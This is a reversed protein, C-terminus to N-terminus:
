EFALTELNKNHFMVPGTLFRRYWKASFKPTRKQTSYDVHYLGFRMGYGFTWEFNDILSWVFYGRVDAGQRIAKTLSTLYSQLFDVRDTDNLLAQKLVSNNSCQAYGNETVYIPTNNYREKIYMVLKQLGDPVVYFYPMPTPEGISQGNRETTTIVMANGDSTAVECSFKCDQAYITTYHNLGIFDIKLQLMKKEQDTFEPLRSSFFAKMDPPYDGFIVPDLFWDLSFTLARKAAIHDATINRFPEYWKAYLVIGIVGEQKMQYNKKYNSIAIAHSLIMNHATIYPEITSDGFDCNGFPRTCRGPPYTGLMYGFKPWLNPENLTVWHKVRDGFERFCIEAYYGFDQQVESSLWAGYRDELEQPIDYHSLTVFPQIGKSLLSNILKNYFAVGLENIQGFRGRPLIRSWSISFRYSNVGLSHMLEVDDEYLCYHDDAVDGNSGDDIKGPLHTFVDWNSAGKNDELAAGEIQYSSTAVGFLFSNPFQSRDISAISSIFHLFLVLSSALTLTMAM